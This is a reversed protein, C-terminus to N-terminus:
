VDLSDFSSLHSRGSLDESGLSSQRNSHYSVRSVDDNSKDVVSNELHTEMPVPKLSEISSISSNCSYNSKTRKRSEDSNRSKDPVVEDELHFIEVDDDEDCKSESRVTRSRGNGEEEITMREIKKDQDNRATKRKSKNEKSDKSDKSAKSRKGGSESSDDDSNAVFPTVEGITPQTVVQAQNPSPHGMGSSNIAVQIAAAHTPSQSQSPPTPPPRPIVTNIVLTTENSHVYYTYVIYAVIIGVVVAFIAIYEPESTIYLWVFALGGLFFPEVFRLVARQIDFPTFAILNVFFASIGNTFGVVASWIWAITSDEPDGCWSSSHKRDNPKWKHCVEGPLYNHYSLVIWSEMLNPFQKAVNTSLFLYDPANLVEGDEDIIGNGVPNMMHRPSEGNGFSTLIYLRAVAENLIRNIRHVERAVISPIFYNIYMCEMSEFIGVEIFFQMVCAILYSQQWTIGRQFGRLVAFYAFFANLLMIFILLIVKTRYKVVPLQAYDEESKAYFIRSAPSDRGLLDRIFLQLIELGAHNDTASRLEKCIKKSEEQVFQIEHDIVESVTSLQGVESTSSFLLTRCTGNSSISSKHLDHNFFNSTRANWEWQSDFISVESPNPMLSADGGHQSLLLQQQEVLLQRQQTIEQKLVDLSNGHGMSESGLGLENNRAVVATSSAGRVSSRVSMRNTIVTQARDAVSVMSLRANRHAEQTSTPIFRTKVIKATPDVNAEKNQQGPIIATAMNLAATSARRAANTVKQGIKSMASSAALSARIKEETPASLLSFIYDLPRMGLATFLSTVVACYLAERFTFSQDLYLCHGSPYSDTVEWACYSESSDMLSKRSLCTQKTYHTVCSGDDEPGQLDYLVALLFMLMTQVTLLQLLTLVPLRSTNSTNGFFLNLYSHHRFLEEKMRVVMAAESYVSPVVSNIYTTLRELVQNGQGVSTAPGVSIQLPSAAKKKEKEKKEKEDDDFYYRKFAMFGIIFFGTSWLISFMLIVILVRQLDEASTLGPAAKFTNAFQNAVYVTMLAMNLAGTEYLVDNVTSDLRRRGTGTGSVACRCYTFSETENLKVCQNTTSATFNNVHVSQCGTSLVPCFATFSGAVSGNCIHEIVYGSYPCTYNYFVYQDDAICTTTFNVTSTTMSEDVNDYRYIKVDVTDINSTKIVFINSLATGAQSTNASSSWLSRSFEVAQLSVETSVSSNMAIQSSQVGIAKELDTLPASVTPTTDSSSIDFSQSALRFMDLVYTTADAGAVEDRQIVDTFSTLISLASSISETSTTSSYNGVAKTLVLSLPSLIGEISGASVGGNSLAEEVIYQAISNTLTMSSDSLDYESYIITNLNSVLNSLSAEDSDVKSTVEALGTLLSEKAQLALLSNSKTVSCTSGDYDSDCLCKTECNLELISCSDVISNSLTSYAICSGHNSCSSVCEKSSAACTSTTSSCYLGNSSSTSSCQSDKNCTKGLYLTIESQKICMTNKSGTEGVYGDWCSGCTDDITLDSCSKRHLATCNPTTAGCTVKSRIASGSVSIFQKLYDATYNVANSSTLESDILAKVSVLTSPYVYVMKTSSSTANLNDYVILQAITLYNNSSLGSPMYSYSYTYESKSRVVLTSGTISSVFGFQYQVPLDADYWSSTFLTFATSLEIGSTPTVDFVGGYPPQNTTVKVSVSAIGSAGSSGALTFTYESNSSLSGAKVQLNTSSTTLSAVTYKWASSAITSVDVAKAGNLSSWTVTAVSSPATVRAAISLIQDTNVNSLDSPTTTILVVPQSDGIVKVAISATANRNGNIVLVTVVNTSNIAGASKATLLVSSSSTSSFVLLCTGGTSSTCSWSYSLGAVRSDPDYSSSADLSLSSSYRLLRSSSGSISAVLESSEVNVTVTSSGSLSTITNTATFEIVYTKGTTFSYAPLLFKSKDKSVSTFNTLSLVASSTSTASSIQRYVQWKMTFTATNNNCSGDIVSGFLNLTNTRYISRSSTGAISAVPAVNGSQVLVTQNAQDCYGFFNCVQFEFNYTNSSSFLSRALVIPKSISFNASLINQLDSNYSQTNRDFVLVSYNKWTRGCSGTTATLDLSLSGCGGLISPAIISLVPKVPNTPGAVAVSASSIEFADCSSSSCSTKIIVRGSLTILDDVELFNSTVVPYIGITSSDIWACTSDNSLQFSLVKYCSFSKSYGAKNTSASLAVTCNTGDSNLIASAISLKQLTPASTPSRTTPKVTPPRLFTPARTTPSFTSPMITPGPSPLTTPFATPELTPDPSPEFTVVLTPVFSPSLSPYLTPNTSPIITPDVSPALTPSATPILSPSPTPNMSPLQSPHVTTPAISPAFSPAVSPLITPNPTPNLTPLLTPSVSPVVSPLYSPCVTPSPTPIPTPSVTPSHSPIHSPFSSPTVTPTQSPFATPAMSPVDTPTVSPQISPVITPCATPLFSPSATPSLTPDVSPIPSPQLTPDITPYPTANPALTPNLSPIVSPVASNTPIETPANSPTATPAITPANSPAVTPLMTPIATPSVSPTFTPTDTPTMSPFYSPVQTPDATPSATPTYTPGTSPAITPIVSPTISPIASPTETPAMSPFATPILTPIISPTATPAETPLTTPYGPLVTPGATTPIFSPPATPAASPIATPTASPLVTPIISPATTPATSPTVTPVYTPDTTPNVSPSITPSLTPSYTPVHSPPSSPAITPSVSPSTSPACTPPSSPVATPNITPFETPTPTPAITPLASPSTTPLVSPIPTPALTPSASPAYWAEVRRIRCNGNDAIFLNNSTDLTIGTVVNLSVSTASHQDGTYGPFGNGAYDSVLKSDKNIVSVIFSQDAYFYINGYEDGVVSNPYLVTTATALGNSTWVTTGTGAYTTLYGDTSIKLIRHGSYEAIFMEGVSSVWIDRPSKMMANLALTGEESIGSIGVGAVTTVTNTLLDLRRIKHNGSDAVYLYSNSDVFLGYPSKIMTSTGVAGDGSNGPIGTGIVTFIKQASIMRVRHYPSESFYINGASDGFIDAFSNINANTADINDGNYSGGGTGAITSILGTGSDVKRIRKNVNDAIFIDGNTDVYVAKPYNLTAEEAVIGDGGYGCVSTGAVTTIAGAFPSYPTTPAHTPPHSITPVTTPTGTPPLSTPSETPSSPMSTPMSTPTSPAQTPPITPISSPFNSPSSTPTMIPQESPIGSPQNTPQGTPMSPSSTPQATPQSPKMTPQSTPFFTPLPSPPLIAEIKRVCCNGYDSYYVNNDQDAFIGYSKTMKTSTAALYDRTFGTMTQGLYTSVTGFTGDIMKIQALESVIYLNGYADGTIDTPLSIVTSTAIAGESRDCGTSCGGAFTSIVGSSISRIRSNQYDAIFITGATNLWVSRPTYLQASTAPGSDGSYGRNGNGAILTIIGTNTNVMRIKHNAYDAFYLKGNTDLHMGMPRYILASTALGGDGSSGAIGTGAVTTVIGGAVKRIRYNYSDSIYMVGNADGVVAYPNTFQTSTAALGDGNFGAIGTGAFTSVIGSTSIVRVRHGSIESIYFEGNTSKWVGTPYNVGAHLGSLGDGFYRCTSNGIVTTVMGIFLQVPAFSVSPSSTPQSTPYRSPRCSPQSSPLSTPRPTPAETPSRTPAYYVADIRRIRCFSYDAFYVNNFEDVFMGYIQSVASNIALKKDGNFTTNGDGAFKSIIGTSHDVVRMSFTLENGIYINGYSDGFVSSPSTVTTSTAAVGNTEISSFAGNGAFTSVIGNSDVKRIRNGRNEAIYIEKNTSVWVSSPRNLGAQSVYGQDGISDAYGLGMVTTMWNTSLDIKRIKHNNYDAIYLYSELSNASYFHFIGWPSNLLAYSVPVGDLGDGSVGELGAYIEYYGGVLIRRIVHQRADSVYINGSTDGTIGTFYSYEIVPSTLNDDYFFPYQDFPPPYSSIIGDVAVKRVVKNTTDAIFLNGFADKYIGRAYTISAATAVNDDGTYGCQYGGAVTTISGTYPEFLITPSTTPQSSPSASPQSSPCSSPQNSPQSTPQGTPTSPQMTPQSTPSISPQTSPQSTPNTPKSTPQCTPQSSPKGFPAFSPQSTPQGTPTSPSITPQLTPQGTPSISPQSTPQGSPQSSPQRSPQSSPQTTPNSPANTPQSTPQTPQSTPQATPYPIPAPTQMASTEAYRVLCNNTDAYYLTLEDPGMAIGQSYRLTTNWAPYGDPTKGPISRGIYYSMKGSNAYVVRVNALALFSIYINGYSDGTISHPSPLFASTAAINISSSSGGGAFTTILGTSIKILRVRNNQSDAIYINGNSDLWVDTPFYLRASTPAMNDTNSYGKTGTGAITTINGTNTNVMRIKHSEKDAIYLYGNTDFFLGAPGGLSVSTAKGSDVTISVSGTGAVTGLIGASSVSRVRYDRNDSIYLTGATNGVIAYVSKLKSSTAPTGDASVDSTGDGIINTILRSSHDVKRVRFNSSDAIYIDWNSSVWIDKPYKLAATTGLISDGNFACTGNGAVTYVLGLTAIAPPTTPRLTPTATPVLTPSAAFAFSVLVVSWLCKLAFCFKRMVITKLYVSRLYRRSIYM